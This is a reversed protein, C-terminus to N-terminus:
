APAMRALREAAPPHSYYFRAYVPDPTLTSAHDLIHKLDAGAMFSPKASTVIIGTVSDEAKLREFQEASLAAGDGPDYVLAGSPRAANDLLAKNWAAASNHTDIAIAAAELATRPARQPASM